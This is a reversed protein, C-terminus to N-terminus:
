GFPDDPARMAAVVGRAAEQLLTADSHVGVFTYGLAICAHAVAPAYTLIGAHRGHARAVEPVRALAAAYEPGMNTMDAPWIGMSTALDSPGVFLVDVGDVAAIEELADLAAVTEIQVMVLIADDANRGYTVADTGFAFPARLGGRSRNGAPPYRADRVARRADAASEVMPVLVGYAGSDLASQILASENWTVRVLPAADTTCLATVAHQVEGLPVPGHEMDVLVWEFGANGLIQAVLDNGLTSWTGVTVGGARLREKPRNVRMTGGGM